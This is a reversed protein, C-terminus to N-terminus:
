LGIAALGKASVQYAELATRIQQRVEATKASLLRQIENTVTDAFPTDSLPAAVLDNATRSQLESPLIEWHAVGYIGRQVMIDHENAGTLASFAMAEAVKSVPAGTVWRMDSLWLWYESSLPRVALIEIQGDRRKTTKKEDNRDDVVPLSSERASFALGSVAVWPRVAEIQSETPGLNTDVIRDAMWFRIIDWGRSVAPGCLGFIVLATFIRLPRAYM